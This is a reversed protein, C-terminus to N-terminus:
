PRAVVRRHLHAGGVAWIPTPQVVVSSLRTPSVEVASNPHLRFVVAHLTSRGVPKLSAATQRLELSTNAEREAQLAPYECCHHIMACRGEKRLQCGLEPLAGERPPQRVTSKSPPRHRAPRRSRGPGTSSRRGCAMWPCLSDWMSCGERSTGPSCVVSSAVDGTGAQNLFLTDDQIVLQLLQDHLNDIDWHRQHLFLHHIHQGHGNGLVLCCVSTGFTSM